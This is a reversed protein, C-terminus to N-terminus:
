QVYKKIIIDNGSLLDYEELTKKNELPRRPVSGLLEYNKFPKLPGDNDLIGRVDYMKANRNLKIVEIERTEGDQIKLECTPTDENLLYRTRVRPPVKKKTEVSSAEGISGATSSAREGSGSFPVFGSDVSATTTISGIELKKMQQQQPTDILSTVKPATIAGVSEDLLSGGRIPRLGGTSIEPASQSRASRGVTDGMISLNESMANNPTGSTSTSGNDLINQLEPPLPGAGPLRTLAEVLERPPSRSFMERIQEPNPEPPEAARPRSPPLRLHIGLAESSERAMDVLTRRADGVTECPRILPIGVIKKATEQEAPLLRQSMVERPPANNMEQMPIPRHRYDNQQSNFPAYQEAWKCCCFIKKHWATKTGPISLKRATTNDNPGLDDLFNDPELPMTYVVQITTSNIDIMKATLADKYGGYYKVYCLIAKSYEGNMMDCVMKKSSDDLPIVDIFM